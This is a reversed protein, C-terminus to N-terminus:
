IRKMAVSPDGEKRAKMFALAIDSIMKRLPALEETMGIFKDIEAVATAFKSPLKDLKKDYTIRGRSYVAHFRTAKVSLDDAELDAKLKEAARAIVESKIEETM